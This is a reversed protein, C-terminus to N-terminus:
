DNQINEKHPSHKRFVHYKSKSCSHKYSQSCWIERRCPRSGKVVVVLLEPKQVTSCRFNWICLAVHSSQVAVWLSQQISSYSAVQEWSFAIHGYLDIGCVHELQM